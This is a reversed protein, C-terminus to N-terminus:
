VQGQEQEQEFCAEIKVYDDIDHWVGINNMKDGEDVNEHFVVDRSPVLKHSTPDFLKYAKQDDCYGIFTYKISKQMLNEEKM